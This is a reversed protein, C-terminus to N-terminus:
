CEPLWAEHRKVVEDPAGALLTRAQEVYADASDADEGVADVLTEVTKIADHVAGISDFRELAAVAYERGSEVAGAEFEFQGLVHDARAVWYTADISAAHDRVDRAISAGREVNGRARELHAHSLRVRLSLLSDEGEVADLAPELWNGARDLTGTRRERESLCLQSLTIQEPDGVRTALEHGKEGYTQAQNDTGRRLAILSLNNYTRALARQDDLAEYLELSREYYDFARDLRGLRHEVEGLNHYCSAEGHRNEHERRIELVREHLQAAREFNGRRGEVTGINNLTSALRPRDGLAEKRERSREYYEIAQDFNNRQSELHGLNHLCKAVGHRDGVVKSRELSEAYLTAARDFNGRQGEIVGLNNLAQTVGHRDGLAEMHDLNREFCEAARDFSGQKWAVNGMSNITEAQGRRDGLETLLDLSSEYYENARDFAGRKTAVNGIQRHARAEWRRRGCAGFVTVAREFNREAEDFSGRETQVEGLRLRVRARIVDNDEADDEVMLLCAQCRDVAEDYDGREIFVRALGLYREGARDISDDDVREFARAARDYYGGALFLKGLWIPRDDRTSVGCVDPLEIEDRSGDGFLPALTARERGLDYVAKVHDEAWRKPDEFQTELLREQDLHNAIAKRQYENDALGVLASVIRGFRGAATETGEVDVLHALFATSWEEHVARYSGDSRPYLVQGELQELIADIAEFQTPDGVAYLLGRDVGVGTANLVNALIGVSLTLDDGALTEYVDAVADELATPGDALPDAYTALRHMLRLLEHASGDSSLGDSVARWLEDAPVDVSRNATREFHEVLHVCDREGLPPVHTLEFARKAAVSEFRDRWEQERADLLISVDDTAELRDAVDFISEANPRVADEVVVLAHGDGDTLTGVLEDVASFSRGRDSERYYVPGHDTDYWNCAIQKLITSKGSGPPGLVVQNTGSLLSETLSTAVDREVDTSSEDAIRTSETETRTRPIAYGTHVETLSLGARWATTPDAVPENRFYSGDIRSFGEHDLPDPLLKGITAFETVEGHDIEGNADSGLAGTRDTAESRYREFTAEGWRVASGRDNGVLGYVTGRDTYTVLQITTREHTEPENAELEFLSLGFPPVSGVAVSFADAEAMAAMRRPFEQSFTDFVDPSVVLEAPRADTIVHEYLLRVHRPDELTPILARYGTADALTDLSRELPRYPSPDGALIADGGAVIAPAVDATAPIPDLVAKAALIDDFTELFSELQDYVLRGAVTVSVGGDGREVLEIAELDNVARNITARSQGTDAMLDRIHASSECLRCLLDIRKIITETDEARPGGVM